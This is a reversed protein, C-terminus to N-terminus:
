AIRYVRQGDDRRASAVKLGMKKGAVASIFGRVSHAQWGSAKQLESATAGDARQMLAIVTGGKTERGPTKTAPAKKASRAPKTGKKAKAAPKAKAKASAPKTTTIIEVAAKPAANKTSTNKKM